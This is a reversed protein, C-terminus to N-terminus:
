SKSDKRDRVSPNNMFYNTKTQRMSNISVPKGSDRPNLIEVSNMKKCPRIMITEPDASPTVPHQHRCVAVALHFEGPTFDFPTASLAAGNV